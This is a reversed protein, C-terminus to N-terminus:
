NVGVTTSKMSGIGLRESIISLNKTCLQLFNARECGEATIESLVCKGLHQNRDTSSVTTSM